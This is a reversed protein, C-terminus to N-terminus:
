LINHLHALGLTALGFYISLGTIDIATSIFPSSAIAPDVKMWKFLFPVLTGMTAAVTINALLGVGIIAGFWPNGKWLFVMLGVVVGILSGILVGVLCQKQIHLLAKDLNVHGTALGRVILAASQTGVNGGLGGLLPIFIALIPVTHITNSFSDGVLVTVFCGILTFMLWPTRTKVATILGGTVLEGIEYDESSLGSSTYYEETLKEELVKAADDWTIIGKLRGANDVVPVALLQYKQTREAVAEADDFHNASIVGTSMIQEVAIYPPATILSRLGLVGLLKDDRDVVYLYYFSTNDQEARIKLYKLTEEATMDAYIQVFESSMVGGASDEPYTMLEKLNKAHRLDPILTILEIVKDDPFSNLVDVAEDSPMLQLIDVLKQNDLRELLNEMVDWDLDKIVEGSREVDLQEFCALQQDITLDRFLDAIDASHLADLQRSLAAYNKQQLHNLLTEKTENLSTPTSM